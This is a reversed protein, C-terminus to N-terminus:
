IMKITFHEPLTVVIDIGGTNAKRRRVIPNKVVGVVELWDQPTDSTNAGVYLYVRPSTYIDTLTDLEETTADTSLSVKRENKYGINSESSQDTLISTIFKNTSGIQKPRDKTEYYQYFPFFRYQGNRDLYKLIRAEPCFDLPRVTKTSTLVFNVVFNVDKEVDALTKYRYYGVVSM